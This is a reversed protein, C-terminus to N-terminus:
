LLLYSVVVVMGRGGGKLFVLILLLLLLLIFRASFPAEEEEEQLVKQMSEQEHIRLHYSNQEHNNQLRKTSLPVKQAQRYVTIPYIGSCRIGPGQIREM